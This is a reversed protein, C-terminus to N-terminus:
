VTPEGSPAFAQCMASRRTVAGLVRDGELVPVISLGRDVMWSAVDALPTSPTAHVVERTLIEGVTAGTAKALAARARGGPDLQIVAEFVAFVTPLHVQQNRFVLDMETVVGVLREGELVLAGPAREAALLQALQDVPLSPSVILCHEDLADVARTM